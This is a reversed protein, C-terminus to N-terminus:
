INECIGYVWAREEMNINQQCYAHERYFYRFRIM